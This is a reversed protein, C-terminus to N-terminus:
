AADFTLTPTAANQTGITNTRASNNSFSISGVTTDAGLTATRNGTATADNFIASAGVANPVSAPSWNAATNWDGSGSNLAWTEARAFTTFSLLVAAALAALISFRKM